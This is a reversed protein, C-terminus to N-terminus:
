RQLPNVIILFEQNNFNQVMFLTFRELFKPLWWGIDHLSLHANRGDPLTKLAPRTAVTFFGIKRTLDQLHNLVNDLYEPEIHELVDTCVVIDAPRPLASKKEFAPDYEKIAFPMNNGLIGKGCGYDLIDQTKLQMAWQIIDAAWKISHTGYHVNDDHLQTNLKKYEESIFQM